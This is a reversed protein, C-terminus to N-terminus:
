QEKGGSGTARASRTGCGGRVQEINLRRFCLLFVNRQSHIPVSSPNVLASILACPTPNIQDLLRLWPFVYFNV